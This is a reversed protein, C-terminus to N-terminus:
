HKKRLSLIDLEADTLRRSVYHLPRYHGEYEQLLVAAIASSSSDTAGIFRAIGKVDQPTPYDQIVQTRDPDIQIGYPSLIHELFSVTPTAYKVKAPNVTLRADALREFVIRLQKVHSEFDPSYILLDDSYTFLFKFKVDVSSLNQFPLKNLLVDSVLPFDQKTESCAQEVVSWNIKLVGLM